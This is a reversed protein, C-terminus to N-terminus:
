AVSKKPWVQLAMEAVRLLEERSAGNIAQITMGQFVTTVFRALNDADVTKSLDGESQAREFRHRLAKQGKMRLQILKRRIPKAEDGGVLGSEIAMCGCRSSAQTLFEASQRLMRAAVEYATAEELAEHMFSAPGEVYRQLSEEFLAQKNGFAAYLSPPRIGMAATLDNMSAGEFGKQWFVRMARDLAQDRDFAPPRGVPKTAKRGM